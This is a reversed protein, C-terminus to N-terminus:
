EKKELEIFNFEALFKTLLQIKYEHSNIKRRNRKNYAM